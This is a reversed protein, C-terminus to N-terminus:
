GKLGVMVMLTIVEVLECGAGLTDGTVGGIRKKLFSNLAVLGAISILFLIATAWRAFILSVGFTIITAVILEKPEILNVFPRGIGGKKRAYPYFYASFVLSWRGYTAMLILAGLIYPSPLSYLLTLKALIIMVLGVVGFAGVRGQRMIALVEERDKSASLGDITDALGDLHLAKTFLIESVILLCCVVLHPLFARLLLYILALVGGLLLGVLPFYLISRALERDSIKGRVRIPISTLFQLAILFGKM